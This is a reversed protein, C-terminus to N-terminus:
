AALRGELSTQLEHAIRLAMAALTKCGKTYSNSQWDGISWDDHPGRTDVSKYALRNWPACVVGNGHLFNGGRPTDKPQDLAGTTPNFWHWAPPLAAYETCDVRLHYTAGDKGPMGVDFHLQDTVTVSWGLLAANELLDHLEVEVLLTSVTSM